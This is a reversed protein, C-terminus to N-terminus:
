DDSRDMFITIREALEPPAQGIEMALKKGDRQKNYKRGLFDRWLQTLVDAGPALKLWDNEWRASVEEEAASWLADVRHSLEAESPVRERLERLLRDKDAKEKALKGRLANDVYTLSGLERCVKKLIVVDQLGDASDKMAIAVEDASIDRKPKGDYSALVAAIARSDLLYNEIERRALVFTNGSTLLREVLRPPLEDHDRVYLVRRESLKDAARLWSNLVGAMRANEGGEGNIIALHPDSQLLPFWVGLIDQDSPGEVLLIRDASLVDSLRIGLEKFVAALTPEAPLITSKGAMRRVALVTAARGPADLFIPSHTTIVFLREASWDSLLSVLARQAAPHLATEPEEIGVVAPAPHALGVVLTMLLQEVGTGLNKLNHRFTTHCPDVFTISVETGRTDLRLEGVDPVIQALVAQLRHWKEPDNTQLHLLVAALNSGTPGIRDSSQLQQIHTTGQRLAPFHFFQERWCLFATTLPALAPSGPNEIYSNPSGARGRDIVSSDDEPVERHLAAAESYHWVHGTHDLHNTALIYEKGSAGPGILQVPCREGAQTSTYKWEVWDFSGESALDHKKAVVLNRMQAREIDTLRFRAHIIPAQGAVHCMDPSISRGALVELATLVSSKGSNNPGAILLLGCAPFEITARSYARFHILELQALHM